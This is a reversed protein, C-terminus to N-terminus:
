SVIYVLAYNETLIYNGTYLYKSPVHEIRFEGKDGALEFPLVRQQKAFDVAEKGTIKYLAEKASWAIQIKKGSLVKLEEAGLFRDALQEIKGSPCEIDIGVKATNHIIVALWERSHSISIQCDIDKLYPKGSEFYSLQVNKGLLTKLAARAGLYERKRKGSRLLQYADSEQPTLNVFDLMTLEDEIMKWILIRANNKSSFFDATM